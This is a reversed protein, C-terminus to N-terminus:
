PLVGERQRMSLASVCEVRTAWWVVIDNDGDIMRRMEESASEKLCLPIVASSDWYKM